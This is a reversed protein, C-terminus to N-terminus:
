ETSNVVETPVDNRINKESRVASKSPDQAAAKQMKEAPQEIM